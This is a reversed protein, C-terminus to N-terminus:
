VVTSPRQAALELVFRQGGDPDDTSFLSGFSKQDIESCVTGRSILADHAINRAGPEPNIVLPDGRFPLRASRM